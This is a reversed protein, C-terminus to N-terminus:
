YGGFVRGYVDHDGDFFVIILLAILGLNTQAVAATFDSLGTKLVTLLGILFMAVSGLFYGSVSVLSAKFPATTNRTYDGILPLWSLAM